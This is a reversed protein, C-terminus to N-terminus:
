YELMVTSQVEYCLLWEMVEQTILVQCQWKLYIVANDTYYSAKFGAASVPSASGNNIVWEAAAGAASYFSNDVAGAYLAARALVAYAGMKTM